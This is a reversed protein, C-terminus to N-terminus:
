EIVSELCRVGKAFEGSLLMSVALAIEGSMASLHWGNALAQQRHRLVTKIGETVRGLLLQCNGVVTQGLQRDIPTLALRECEEGHALGAAYDEAVLCARMMAISRVGAPAVIAAIM